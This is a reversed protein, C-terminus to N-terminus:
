RFHTGRNQHVRGSHAIQLLVDGWLDDSGVGDTRAIEHLRQDIALRGEPPDAFSHFGRPVAHPHCNREHALTEAHGVTTSRKEIYQVACHRAADIHTADEPPWIRLGGVDAFPCRKSAGLGITLKERSTSRTDADAPVPCMAREALVLLGPQDISTLWGLGCEDAPDVDIRAGHHAGSMYTASANVIGIQFNGARRSGVHMVIEDL